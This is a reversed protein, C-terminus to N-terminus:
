EKPSIKSSPLLTRSTGPETPQEQQKESIQPEEFSKNYNRFSDLDHLLRRTALSVLLFSGLGAESVRYGRSDKLVLGTRSSKNVLDSIYKPNVAVHLLDTFSVQDGGEGVIHGVMQLRKKNSYFDCINCLRDIDENLSEIELRLAEKQSDQWEEMQLPISWLLKRGNALSLTLGM